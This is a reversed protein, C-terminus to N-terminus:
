KLVDTVSCRSSQPSILVNFSVSVDWHSIIIRCVQVVLDSLLLGNRLWLGEVIQILLEPEVVSLPPSFKPQLIVCKRMKASKRTM